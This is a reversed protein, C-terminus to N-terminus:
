RNQHGKTPKPTEVIRQAGHQAAAYERGWQARQELTPADSKDKTPLGTLAADKAIAKNQKTTM